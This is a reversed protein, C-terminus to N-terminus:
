LNQATMKRQEARRYANVLTFYNFGLVFCGICGSLLLGYWVGYPQGALLAVLGLLLFIVSLSLSAWYLGFILKKAKGAPAYIGMLTGMVGGMLGVTVGFIWGYYPPFWPENM